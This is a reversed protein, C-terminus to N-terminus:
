NEPLGTLEIFTDVFGKPEAKGAEGATSVSPTAGGQDKLQLRLRRNLEIQSILLERYKPAAAAWLSARALEKADNEGSFIERALGVREDVEANWESDDARPAFIELSSAEKAVGDFLKHTESLRAERDKAQDAMMQSYTEESNTLATARDQKIEEINALMAGLQAQKTSSLEVMIEELANNRYESEDMLMLEGLRESGEGEVLNKSREVIGIIKNVYDQQFKPHREIAALKLQQSLTDRESTLEKLMNDVDSNELSELKEKLTDLESKYADRDDKISKFDKASRSETTEAEPEAEPEAEKEAELDLPEDNLAKEFAEAFSTKEEAVEESPKEESATEETPTQEEAEPAAEAEPAELELTDRGEMEFTEKKAM